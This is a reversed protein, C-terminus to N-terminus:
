FLVGDLYNYLEPDQIYDKLEEKSVWAHDVYRQPTKVDGKVYYGRYFFIKAGYTNLSQQTSKEFPYTYFGAPANGTMYVHTQPGAAVAVGETAFDRIQRKENTLDMPLPVQPFQWAHDQRNKKVIFYLNQDLKRRLSKRNDERDAKTIRDGVRVVAEERAAAAIEEARMARARQEEDMQALEAESIKVSTTDVQKKATDEDLLPQLSPIQAKIPADWRAKWENYAVEWPEPETELVPPRTVIMAMKHNWDKKLGSARAKENIESNLRRFEAMQMRKFSATQRPRVVGDPHRVM